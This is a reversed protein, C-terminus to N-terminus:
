EEGFLRTENDSRLSVRRELEVGIRGYAEVRLGNLIIRPNLRKDFILFDVEVLVIM